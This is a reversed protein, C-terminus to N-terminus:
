FFDNESELDDEWMERTILGETEREVNVIFDESPAMGNEVFSITTIGFGIAKAFQRITVKERTRWLMLLEGAMVEIYSKAMWDTPSIILKFKGLPSLKKTLIHIHRRFYSNPKTKNLIWSSLRNRHITMKWIESFDAYELGARKKFIKFKEGGTVRIQM